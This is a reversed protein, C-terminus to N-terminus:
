QVSLVWTKKAFGPELAPRRSLNGLPIVLTFTAAGKETRCDLESVVENEVTKIRGAMVRVNSGRGWLYGEMVRCDAQSLTKFVGGADAMAASGLLLGALIGIFFSKMGDGAHGTAM